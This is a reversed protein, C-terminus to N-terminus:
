SAKKQSENEIQLQTQLCLAIHQAPAENCNMHAAEM